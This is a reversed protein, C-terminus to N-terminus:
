KRNSLGLVVPITDDSFRFEGSDNWWTKDGTTKLAATVVSNHDPLLQGFHHQSYRGVSRLLESPLGKELAALQEAAAVSLRERFEGEIDGTAADVDAASVLSTGRALAIGGAQQGILNV